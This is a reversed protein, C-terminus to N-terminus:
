FVEIDSEVEEFIVKCLEGDYDEELAVPLPSEYDQIDIFSEEQDGVTARTVAMPGYSIVCGGNPNEVTVKVAPSKNFKDSVEEVLGKSHFSSM